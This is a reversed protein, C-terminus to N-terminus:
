RLRERRWWRRQLSVNRSQAQVTLRSIRCSLMFLSLACLIAPILCITNSRILSIRCSFGPMVGPCIASSVPSAGFVMVLYRRAIRSSHCPRPHCLQANKIQEAADTPKAKAKFSRATKFGYREALNLREGAANQRLVPGSNRYIFVNGFECAVNQCSVSNGNIDDRATEWALINARCSLLAPHPSLHSPGPNPSFPHSPKQILSKAFGPRPFPAVSRRRITQPVADAPRFIASPQSTPVTMPPVRNSRAKRGPRLTASTHRSTNRASIASKGM